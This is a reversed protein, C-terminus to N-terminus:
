GATLSDGVVVLEREAVPGIPSGLQWSTEWILGVLLAGSLATASGYRWGKQWTPRSAFAWWAALCFVFGYWWRPLPAASLILAFTGIAATLVGGRSFAEARRGDPKETRSAAIRLGVAGFLLACATFFAGGGAFHRLVADLVGNGTM